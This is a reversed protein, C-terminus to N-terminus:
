LRVASKLGAVEGDSLERISGTDDASKGIVINALSIRRLATVEKGFHAFIRRVEHTKGEYLTIEATNDEIASLEAPATKVPKDM